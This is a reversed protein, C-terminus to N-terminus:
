TRQWDGAAIKGNVTRDYIKVIHETSARLCNLEEQLSDVASTLERERESAHMQAQKLAAQLSDLASTSEREREFAHMQAQKLAAQLSDLASTLEREREFAHTQCNMCKYRTGELPSMGCGDCAITRHVVRAGVAPEPSPPSAAAPAVPGSSGAQEIAGSFTAAAKLQGQLRALASLDSDLSTLHDTLCAATGRPTPQPASAPQSCSAVWSALGIKSDDPTSAIGVPMPALPLSQSMRPEEAADVAAGLVAAAPALGRTRGRARYHVEHAPIPVVAAAAATITISAAAPASQLAAVALSDFGAGDTGTAAPATAQLDDEAKKVFSAARGPIYMRVAGDLDFGIIAKNVGKIIEEQFVLNYSCYFGAIVALVALVTQIIFGTGFRPWGNAPVVRLEWDVKPDNEPGYQISMAEFDSLMSGSLLSDASAAFATSTKKNILQYQMGSSVLTEFGVTSVLDDIKSIMTALGWFVLQRGNVTPGTFTSNAYDTFIPLTAILGVGGQVLTRPGDFSVDRSRITHLTRNLRAPNAPDLLDLGVSAENGQLPHVYRIVGNPLLQLTTIGRNSELLHQAISPFGRELVRCDDHALLVSLAVTVSVSLRLQQELHKAYPQVRFIGDRRADARSALEFDALKYASAVLTALTTLFLFLGGRSILVAKANVNPCLDAATVASEKNAISLAQRRRPVSQVM